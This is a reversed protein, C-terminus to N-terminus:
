LHARHAQSGAPQQAKETLSAKWITALQFLTDLSVMRQADLVRLIEQSWRTARKPTKRNPLARWCISGNAGSTRSRYRAGGAPVAELLLVGGRRRRVLERDNKIQSVIRGDPFPKTPKHRGPHSQQRVLIQWLSILSGPVDGGVDARL